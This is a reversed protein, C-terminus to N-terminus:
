QIEEMLDWRIPALVVSPPRIPEPHSPLNMPDHRRPLADSKSNKTGPRNTVSIQFHTFFLLWRAQRPNLRKANRLYELNRDDTLVLFPHRVGELWLQWEELSEKICLLERNGVDYNADFDTEKLEETHFLGVQLTMPITQRTIFSKRIPRNDVATVRLPTGCPLTPLRLEEVLHHNILNIAGGSDVLTEYTGAEGGQYKFVGRSVLARYM